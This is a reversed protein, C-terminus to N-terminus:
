QFSIALVQYVSAPMEWSQCPVPSLATAASSYNITRGTEFASILLAITAKAKDSGNSLFALGVNNVEFCIAGSQDQDWYAWHFDNIVGTGDAYSEASVMLLLIAALVKRASKM